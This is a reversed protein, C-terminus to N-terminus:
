HLNATAHSAMEFLARVTGGFILVLLCVAIAILALMNAYEVLTAGSEDKLITRASLM